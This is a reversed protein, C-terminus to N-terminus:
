IPSLDAKLAHALCAEKGPSFNKEVWWSETARLVEGLKAGEKMGQAILDQGSLPFSPVHWKDLLTLAAEDFRDTKHDAFHVLLAQLTIAKGDYYAREKLFHQSFNEQINLDSLLTEIKEIFVTEKKSFSFSFPNKRGLSMALLAFVTLKNYLEYRISINIYEKLIKSVDKVNKSFEILGAKQMNELYSPANKYELIKSFEDTVRESSLQAIAASNKQFLAILNQEIKQEVMMSFRIYRYMRLIDEQIRTDADGVFVVARRKIDNLGEGTPDYIQGQRDMLLTNITFDRRQADEEWKTTFAVVARRGDTVVDRRLTTIECSMGKHVLTVTGHEIGTPKVKIASEKFAETVEDPTLTTAMDIDKVPRRLLEDRVCGGVFRGEGGAGEIVDFIELYFHRQEWDPLRTLTWVPSLM